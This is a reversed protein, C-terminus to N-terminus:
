PKKQIALKFDEKWNLNECELIFKHLQKFNNEFWLGILEAANEKGLFAGLHVKNYIHSGIAEKTKSEFAHEVTSVNKKFNEHNPNNIDVYLQVNLFGDMEVSILLESYEKGELINCIAICYRNHDNLERRFDKGNTFSDIYGFYKHGRNRADELIFDMLDLTEKFNELSILHRNELNFDNTMNQKKLFELFGNTVKNHNNQKLFEALESWSIQKFYNEQHEKPDFTKTCYVLKTNYNEKQLKNLISSYRELQKFGEKSDVKNEIFCIDKEGMIVMDVFCNQAGELPYFKQTEIIYNESTLKLFNQCFRKLLNPDYELVNKFIETSYDEKPTKTTKRHFLKYLNNFM